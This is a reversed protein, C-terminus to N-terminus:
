RRVYNCINIFQMLIGNEESKISVLKMMKSRETRNSFTYQITIVIPKGKICQILLHQAIDLLSQHFSSKNDARIAKEEM